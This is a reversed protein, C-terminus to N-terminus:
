LPKLKINELEGGDGGMVILIKDLHIGVGTVTMNEGDRDITYDTGNYTFTYHNITNLTSNNPLPKNTQSETYLILGNTGARAYQGILIRDNTDRGITLYPASANRNYPISDYEVTFAGNPLTVNLNADSTTYTTTNYYLCDEITYTETLSGCKITITVDGAGTSQYQCSAQGNSDTPILGSIKIDGIKFGVMKGSIPNDNEDLVTATLTASENDSFSLIDKTSTVILTTAVSPDESEETAEAIYRLYYNDTRRISEVDGGFYEYIKKYYYNETRIGDVEEGTLIELIKDLYYTSTRRNDEVDGGYHEYIKKLYYNKNKIGTFTEGTLNELIKDLYYNRSKM